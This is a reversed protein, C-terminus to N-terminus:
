GDPDAFVPEDPYREYCGKLIALKTDLGVYGTLTIAGMSFGCGFQM